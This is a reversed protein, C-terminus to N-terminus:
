HSANGRGGAQSSFALGLSASGVPHMYMTNFVNILLYSIFFLGNNYNGKILRRDVTFAAVILLFLGITGFTALFEVYGNEATMKHTSGMTDLGGGLVPHESYISLAMDVKQGRLEDTSREFKKEINEVGILDLGAGGFPVALLSVSAIAGVIATKKIPSANWFQRVGQMLLISALLLVNGRSNTAVAIVILLGISFVIVLSSTRGSCVMLYSILFPYFAANPNISWGQFAFVSGTTVRFLYGPEDWLAPNMLVIPGNNKVDLVYLFFIVAGVVLGAHGIAQLTRTPIRNRYLLVPIMANAAFMFGYTIVKENNVGVLMYITTLACLTVYLRVRHKLLLYTGVILIVLDSLTLVTLSLGFLAGFSVSFFFGSILSLVVVGVV